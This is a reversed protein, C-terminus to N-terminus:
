RTFGLPPIEGAPQNFAHKLIVATVIQQLIFALNQQQSACKHAEVNGWRTLSPARTMNQRHIGSPDDHLRAQCDWGYFEEEFHWM